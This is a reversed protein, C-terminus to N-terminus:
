YIDRWVKEHTIRVPQTAENVTHINVFYELSIRPVPQQLKIHNLKALIPCLLPERWGSRCALEM